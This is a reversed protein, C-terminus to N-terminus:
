DSSPRYPYWYRGSAKLLQGWEEMKRWEVAKWTQHSQISSPAEEMWSLPSSLSSSQPLQRVLARKHLKKTSILRDKSRDHYNHHIHCLDRSLNDHKHLHIRWSLLTSRKLSDLLIREQSQFQFMYPSGHSNHLISQLKQVQISPRSSQAKDFSSEQQNDILPTHFMNTNHYLYPNKYPIDSMM